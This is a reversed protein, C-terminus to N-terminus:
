AYRQKEEFNSLILYNKMNLGNGIHNQLSSIKFNMNNKCWVLLVFVKHRLNMNDIHMIWLVFM